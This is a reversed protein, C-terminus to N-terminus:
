REKARKQVSMVSTGGQRRAAPAGLSRGRHRTPESTHRSLSNTHVVVEDAVERSVLAQFLADREFDRGVGAVGVCLVRPTVHTMDCAALADRVCVVVDPVLSHWECWSM